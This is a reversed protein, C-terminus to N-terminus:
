KDLAIDIVGNLRKENEQETLENWDEPKIIGEQKMIFREKWKNSEKKNDTMIDGLASVMGLLALPNSEKEKPKVKALEKQFTERDLRNKKNGGDLWNLHKGTTSSWCNECVKLLNGMTEFAIITDYSKYFIVGNASWKSARRKVYSQSTNDSYNGYTGIYEM